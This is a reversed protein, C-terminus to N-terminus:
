SFAIHAGCSALVLGILLGIIWKLHLPPRLRSNGQVTPEQPNTLTPGREVMEFSTNLDDLVPQQEQSSQPSPRLLRSPQSLQDKTVSVKDSQETVVASM